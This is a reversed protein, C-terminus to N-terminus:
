NAESSDVHIFSDNHPGAIPSHWVAYPHDIIRLSGNM